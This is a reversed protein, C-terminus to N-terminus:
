PCLGVGVHLDFTNNDPDDDQYGGNGKGPPKSVLNREVVRWLDKRHTKPSKFKGKKTVHRAATAEVKQGNTTLM